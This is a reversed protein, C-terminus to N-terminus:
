KEDNEIVEIVSLNCLRNNENAYDYAKFKKTFVTGMEGTHENVVIWWIRKNKNM